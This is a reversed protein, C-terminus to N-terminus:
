EFIEELVRGTWHAPTKVDLLAAVTATVDMQITPAEIRYGRKIGKGWIFLPTQLVDDVYRNDHYKEYGGHDTTLVFVTEEEMGAERVAEVISRVIGDMHTLYARYEDSKWGYAHGTHDLNGFYILSFEPKHAKFYEAAYVVETSDGEASQEFPVVDDVAASDVLSRIVDWEYTVLMRSAPHQERELRFITPVEGREDTWVPTFDPRRSDWRVYGHYEPQVGSFLTMWNIASATPIVCRKDLTWSAEQELSKVFPMEASDYEAVGWGDIGIMVVHSPLQQVKGCSIALLVMAAIIIVRKM